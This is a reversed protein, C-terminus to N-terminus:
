NQLGLVSHLPFGLSIDPNLPEDNPRGLKRRSSEVELLLARAANAAVGSGSALHFLKTRLTNSSRPYISYYDPYEHPEKRQFLNRLMEFTAPRGIRSSDTELLMLVITLIEAECDDSDRLVSSALVEALPNLSALCISLLEDRWVSNSKIADVIKSAIRAMDWTSNTLGFFTGERLISLFNEFTEQTIDTAIADFLANRDAERLANERALYILSNWAEPVRLQELERVVSYEYTKKQWNNLREVLPKNLQNTPRVFYLLQNVRNFQTRDFEDLWNESELKDCTAELQRVIYENEILAGQLVLECLSDIFVNSDINDRGLEDWVITASVVSPISALTRILEGNVHDLNIHAYHQSAPNSIEQRYTQLMSALTGAASDTMSQLYSDPQQLVRGMDRHLKAETGNVFPKMFQRDRRDCWPGNLILAIAGPVIRHASPHSVLKLLGSLASFGCRTIANTLISSNLPNTPRREKRIAQWQLVCKNFVCWSDLELKIADIVLDVYATKSTRTAISCLAAKVDQRPIQALDEKDWFVRIMDDVQAGSPVWPKGNNNRTQERDIRQSILRLLAESDAYDSTEGLENVVAMLENSDVNELLSEITDFRSRIDPEKLVQKYIAVHLKLWEAALGSIQDHNACSAIAIPDFKEPINSAMSLWATAFLASRENLTLNSILQRVWEYSGVGSLALEKAILTLKDPLFKHAFSLLPNNEDQHREHRLAQLVTNEIRIGIMDPFALGIRLKVTEDHTADVLRILEAKVLDDLELFDDELFMLIRPDVKVKDPATMWASIAANAGPFEWALAAIAATRVEASPDNNALQVVFDFNSPNAATEHIFEARLEPSWATVRRIVHDGLQNVSIDSHGLRYAALRVQNNPDELLNWLNDAFVDFVSDIMCTIAYQRQQKIPSQWFIMVEAVIKDFLAPADARQFGSLGALQCAIGLDIQLAAEILWSKARIMNANTSFKEAVLFLADAWFPWNIADVIASGSLQLPSSEDTLKELLFRAAFFEQFRQHAFRILKGDNVILHQNCLTDLVRGPEPLAVIQGSEALLISTAHLTARTTQLSLTIRQNRNMECSIAELYAPHTGLLPLGQLAIDRRDESEFKSVIAGLIDFLCDNDSDGHHDVLHIVGTLILPNRAALRLRSDVALKDILTSAQEKKLIGKIVQTQGSWTLGKVRITKPSVLGTADHAARTTLVVNVSPTTQMLRSVRNTCIPRKSTPIENWGNILLTLSDSAGIQILQDISIREARIPELSAVYDMIPLETEAWEAADILLAIRYSPQKLISEALELLATTKGIGGEGFLVLNAGSNVLETIKNISVFEPSNLNQEPVFEMNIPAVVNSIRWVQRTGPLLATAAHRLAEIANDSVTCRTQRALIDLLSSRFVEVALRDANIFRIGPYREVSELLKLHAKQAIREEEILQYNLDRPADEIPVAIILEKRHYLALWAEWQTYSLAPAIPEFFGAVEPLQKTFDPYKQRIGEISPPQALAGTMDGVLHIVLDCHRIYEDLKDLTEKGTAIFDEQVMVSINHRTLDHRLSDRYSRFEASVTSLFVHVRVLDSNREFYAM